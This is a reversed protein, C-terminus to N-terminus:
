ATKIKAYIDLSIYKGNKIECDVMTGEHRFDLKLMAQKCNMNDTEVFGEIRHLGLKSFGYDCILPMIESMIGQGWFDTLLWFGIEAKKHERNLDNLGGAGYFVTNDLSCIAFWMGTGNKEMDAYFAMQEKTAALSQFNVGYYKIIRPDSLGKYINEIDSAVIKRLSFRDTKIEPIEITKM